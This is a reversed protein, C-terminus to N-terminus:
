YTTNGMMTPTWFSASKNIQPTKNINFYAQAGEIGLMLSTYNDKRCRRVSTDRKLMQPLDFTQKGLPSVSIEILSCQKQVQRIWDDQTQVLGYVFKDKGETKLDEEDFPYPIGAKIAEQYDTSPELRAAFIIKSRDIWTQLQENIRRVSDQHFVHKFCIRRSSLNYQNKVNRIMKNYDEGQLEGDYELFDFHIGEKQFLSSSNVSEIFKGDMNDLVITVINFAKILYYFYKIYESLDVGAVGYNHVLVAKETEEDLELVSMAFYDGTPSGSLNPDIALIYKKHPDGKLLVTPSKGDEITLQHMKKASFYSENGDVFQACYERQFSPSNEDLGKAEEIVEKSMLYDPVANWSVQQIFYTANNDKHEPNYIKSEWDKYLRFLYEFSYSASSLAIMRTNNEFQFRQDERLTGNRIMEDEERRIKIREPIDKPAVLFPTLVEKVTQESMLLFEDVILVSARMGRTKQGNSPIGRIVGGNVEWQYLDNGKNFKGLCQRLLIAEPNNQIKEMYSFINKVVRFVPGCIIINTNPEFISILFAALASIYSKAAGRGWVCLCYNRLFFAKLAILQYPALRVGAVWEATIDLNYRLFKALSVKAIDDDLEGELKMLEENIDTVPKIYKDPCFIM